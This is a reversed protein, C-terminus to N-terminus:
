PGATIRALVKIDTEPALEQYAMVSLWPYSTSVLRRFPRRAETTTLVIPPTPTAPRDLGIESQLSNLVHDTESETLATRRSGSATLKTELEPALVYVNLPSTGRTYKFNLYHKSANRVTAALLVPDSIWDASPETSFVPREDFVKHGREDAIVYDADLLAELIRKLNRISFEDALLERLVRYLQNISFREHALAILM